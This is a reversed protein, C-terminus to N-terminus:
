RGFRDTRTGFPVAPLPRGPFLDPRVEQQSSGPLIHDPPRVGFLLM